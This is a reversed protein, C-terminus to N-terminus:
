DNDRLRDREYDARNEAEGQDRDSLEDENVQVEATGDCEECIEGDVNVGSECHECLEYVPDPQNWPANPDNEAGAPYSWDSM